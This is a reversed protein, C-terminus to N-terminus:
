LLVEQRIFTILARMGASLHRHRPYYLCLGPYPPTWDALCQVLASGALDAEVVWLSVYGVGFGALVAERILRSSDLELRGRTDVALAEGHREFEWRYQRGSPLRLQVCHHLALDAPSNLPPADALYSPAAVVIHQLEPGIPVAVMTAPVLAKARIGCDFGDRAIDVLKGESVVEIRMEPNAQLFRVVVPALIQETAASAANIRILGSPRESSGSVARVAQDLQALAPVLAEVFRKGVDTLSVNRTTRIFLQVNLRAELGAVAHSLASPSAGLARAAARFGGHHAVAAFAALEAPTLDSM